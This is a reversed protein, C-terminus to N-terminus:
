RATLVQDDPVSVTHRPSGEANCRRYVLHSGVWSTPILHAEDIEPLVGGILDRQRVETLVYVEDAVSVARDYTARLLPRRHEALPLAHKPRSARSRPWLRTGAVGAPIVAVTKTM